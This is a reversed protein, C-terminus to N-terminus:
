VENLWPLKGHSTSVSHDLAKSVTNFSVSMNQEVKGQAPNEEKRGMKVATPNLASTM